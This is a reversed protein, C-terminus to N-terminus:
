ALIRNTIIFFMGIVHDMKVTQHLNVFPSTEPESSTNLDFHRDWELREELVFRNELQFQENTLGM